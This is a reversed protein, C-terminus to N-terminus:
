LSKALLSAARKLQKQRRRPADCLHRRLAPMHEPLRM